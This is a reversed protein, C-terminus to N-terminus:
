SRGALQYADIINWIWYVLAILWGILPIVFAIGGVVFALVFILLGRLFSGAYFQGLGPIFFSFIAALIQSAM